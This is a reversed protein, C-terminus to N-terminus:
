LNEKNNNNNNNSNNRIIKYGSRMRHNSVHSDLARCHRLTIRRDSSSHQTQKVLTPATRTAAPFTHLLCPSCPSLETPNVTDTTWHIHHVLIAHLALKTTKEQQHHNEKKEKKKITTSYHTHTHTHTHTYTHTHKHTHARARYMTTLNNKVRCCLDLM